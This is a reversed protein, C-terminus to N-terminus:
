TKLMKKSNMKQIRAYLLLSPRKFMGPLTEKWSVYLASTDSVFLKALGQGLDVSCWYIHTKKKFLRLTM